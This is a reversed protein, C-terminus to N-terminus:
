SSATIGDRDGPTLMPGLAIEIPETFRLCAIGRAFDVIEVALDKADLDIKVDIVSINEMSFSTVRKLGDVEKLEEEITSEIHIAEIIPVDNQQAAFNIKKDLEVRIIAESSGKM